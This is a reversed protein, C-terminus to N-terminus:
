LGTQCVIGHTLLVTLLVTNVYTMNLNFRKYDGIMLELELKTTISPVVDTDYKGTLIKYTDVIDGRIRRCNLTTLGCAKLCDRYPLYQLAPILKTAREQVKELAEIDGKM